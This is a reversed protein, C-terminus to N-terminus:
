KFFKKINRSFWNNKEESQTIQILSDKCETAYAMDAQKIHHILWTYLMEHLKIAVDHGQDHKNQYRKLRKVFMDHISKHQKLHPYGAEEMLNEEYSLHSLCYGALETLVESVLRDNNSNITFQLQNLYDVIRRHQEDIDDIGTNLDSTWEVFM